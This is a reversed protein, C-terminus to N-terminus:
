IMAKYVHYLVVFIARSIILVFYFTHIGRYVFKSKLPYAIKLGLDTLFVVGGLLRIYDLKSQQDANPHFMQNLEYEKGLM